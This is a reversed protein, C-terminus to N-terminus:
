LFAGIFSSLGVARIYMASVELVNNIQPFEGQM